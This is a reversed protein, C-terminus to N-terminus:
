LSGAAGANKATIRQQQCKQVQCGLGPLSCQDDSRHDNKQPQQSTTAMMKIKNQHYLRRKLCTVLKNLTCDVPLLHLIEEEDKKDEEENMMDNSNRVKRRTECLFLALKPKDKPNKRNQNKVKTSVDSM